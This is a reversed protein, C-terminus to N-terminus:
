GLDLIFEKDAQQREIWLFLHQNSKTQGQTKQSSTWLLKTDLLTWIVCEESKWLEERTKNNHQQQQQKNKKQISKLWYTPLCHHKM